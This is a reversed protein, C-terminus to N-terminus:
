QDRERLGNRQFIWLQDKPRNKGCIELCNMGFNNIADLFKGGKLFQCTVLTFFNSGKIGETLVNWCCSVGSDSRQHEYLPRVPEPLEARSRLARIGGKQPTRMRFVPSKVTIAKMSEIDTWPNAEWVTRGVVVRDASVPFLVLM